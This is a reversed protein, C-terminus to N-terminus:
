RAFLMSVSRSVGAMWHLKAKLSAEAVFICSSFKVRWYVKGQTIDHENAVEATGRQFPVLIRSLQSLDANITCKHAFGPLTLGLYATILSCLSALSRPEGNRDKFFPPPEIGGYVFM